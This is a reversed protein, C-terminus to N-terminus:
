SVIPTVDFLHATIAGTFWIDRNQVQLKLIAGNAIQVSDLFAKVQSMSESSIEVSNNLLSWLFIRMFLGHTFITVFNDDLHKIKDQLDQTRKMTSAFSEAGEGDLYFPNCKGWYADSMPRREQLTTNNRREYSLYTFEQVQWEAQPTSPFRDCTPQATEKTRIYPSTVILSPQQTFSLAVQKAQYHGQETIKINATDFTPLGANAESEGHRILWVTAMTRRTEQSNRPFTLVYITM